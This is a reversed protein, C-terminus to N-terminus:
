HRFFGRQLPRVEDVTIFAGADVQLVITKVTPAHRRAVASNVVTVEGDRGQATFQTVAYGADRLAQAIAGGQGSSYVRFM